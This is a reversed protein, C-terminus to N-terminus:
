HTEKTMLKKELKETLKRIESFDKARKYVAERLKAADDSGQSM